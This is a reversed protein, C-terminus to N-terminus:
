QDYDETSQVPGMFLVRLHFYLIEVDLGSQYFFFLSLFLEEYTISRLNNRCLYDGSIVEM